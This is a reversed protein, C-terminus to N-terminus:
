GPVAGGAVAYCVVVIDRSATLLTRGAGVVVAVLADLARRVGYPVLCGVLAATSYVEKIIRSHTLLAGWASLPIAVHTGLCCSSARWSTSPVTLRAYGESIGVTTRVGVVILWQVLTGAVLSEVIYRAVTLLTSRSTLPISTIAHRETIGIWSRGPWSDITGDSRVTYKNARVVGISYVICGAVLTHAGVIGVEDVIHALGTGIPPYVVTVGADLLSGLWTWGVRVGAAVATKTFTAVDM